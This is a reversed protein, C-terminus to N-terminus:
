LRGNRVEPGEGGGQSRSIIPNRAAISLPPSSKWRNRRQVDAWLQDILLREADTVAGVKWGRKDMMERKVGGRLWWM